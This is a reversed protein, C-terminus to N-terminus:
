ILILTWDLGISTIWNSSCGKYYGMECKADLIVSKVHALLLCKVVLLLLFLSAGCANM